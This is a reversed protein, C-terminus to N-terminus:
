ASVRRDPTGISRELREREREEIGEVKGEVSEMRVKQERMDLQIEEVKGEVRGIGETIPKLKRGLDDSADRSKKRGNMMVIAVGAVQTVLLGGLAYLEKAHDVTPSTAVVQEILM